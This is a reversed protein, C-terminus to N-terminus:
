AAKRLAAAGTTRGPERARARLQALIIAHLILWYPVLVAPIL